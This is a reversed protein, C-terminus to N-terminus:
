CFLLLVWGFLGGKCGMAGSGFACGNWVMAITVPRSDGAQESRGCSMYTQTLQAGKTGNQLQADPTRLQVIISQHVSGWRKITAQYIADKITEGVDSNRHEARIYLKSAM